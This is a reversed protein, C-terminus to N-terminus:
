IYGERVLELAGKAMCFQGCRSFFLKFSNGPLAECRDRVDKELSIFFDALSSGLGGGIAVVDPNFIHIVNMLGIVFYRRLRKIAKLADRDGARALKVVEYAELAKGSLIKFDRELAYSSCYAEWCGRRGCSCREGGVRLTHHGVELASGSAGLFPKGDIVFGAGLGTGLAIFLFSRSDKAESSWVGYAGASVDNVIFVNEGLEKKLNVGDLAPLNPSKQLYGDLSVFGAVALGVKEPHGDKVVDKLIGLLRHRDNKFERIKYIEKSGDENLVKLYSGGLDIGKIM